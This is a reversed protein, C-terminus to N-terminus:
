FYQKQIFFSNVPPSYKKKINLHIVMIFKNSSCLLAGAEPASARNYVNGCVILASWSHDWRKDERDTIQGGVHASEFCRLM